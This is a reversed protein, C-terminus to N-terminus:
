RFEPAGYRRWLETCPGAPHCGRRGMGGPSPGSRRTRNGPRTKLLHLRGYKRNLARAMAGLGTLEARANRLLPSGAGCVHAVQGPRSTPRRRAVLDARLGEEVPMWLGRLAPYKKEALTQATTPCSHRNESDCLRVTFGGGEKGNKFEGEYRSGVM